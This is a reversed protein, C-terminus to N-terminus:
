FVGFNLNQGERGVGSEAALCDAEVAAAAGVPLRRLGAPRTSNAQAQYPRSRGPGTGKRGTNKPFHNFGVGVYWFLRFLLEGHFDVPTRPDHVM